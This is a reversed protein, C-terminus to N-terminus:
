ATRRRKRWADAFMSAAGIGLLAFTSPEPVSAATLSSNDFAVSPYDNSSFQNQLSFTIGTLASTETESYMLKGNFYGTLTSGSRSITFTGSTATEAIPGELSGNWVHVGTTVGGTPLVDDNDYVDCFCTGDAFNSNFQVQDINPGIVANAFDIQASFDGSISGGLAALNLCIAVYQFGGPTPNVQALAVNGGNANVSYLSPTTQTVSWYAPNLGTSFDDSFTEAFANTAIATALVSLITLKKM